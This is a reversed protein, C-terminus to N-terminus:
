NGVGGQGDIRRSGQRLPDDVILDVGVVVSRFMRNVPGLDEGIVIEGSLCEVVEWEMKIL